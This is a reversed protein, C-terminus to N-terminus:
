SGVFTEDKEKKMKELEGVRNELESVAKLLKLKEEREESLKAEFNLVKERLLEENEEDMEAVLLDADSKLQKRGNERGTDCDNTSVFEAAVKSISTLSNGDDESKNVVSNLGTSASKGPETTDRLKRFEAECTSLKQELAGNEQELREKIKKYIEKNEYHIKEAVTIRQYLLRINDEAKQRFEQALDEMKRELVHYNLNSVSTLRKVLKSNSEMSKTTSKVREKTIRQQDAIQLELKSKEIKMSDLKQQLLEIEANLTM